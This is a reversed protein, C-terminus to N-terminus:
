FVGGIVRASKPHVNANRARYFVFSAMHASMTPEAARSSQMNRM